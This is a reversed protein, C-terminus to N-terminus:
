HSRDTVLCQLLIIHCAKPVLRLYYCCGAAHDWALLHRGPVITRRVLGTWGWLGSPTDRPGYHMYANITDLVDGKPTLRVFGSTAATSTLGLSLIVQTCRVSFHCRCNKSVCNSSLEIRASMMKKIAKQM